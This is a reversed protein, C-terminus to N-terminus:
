SFTLEVDFIEWKQLLFCRLSFVEWYMLRYIIVQSDFLNEWRLKFFILFTIKIDFEHGVLSSVKFLLSRQM